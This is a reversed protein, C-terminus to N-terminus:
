RAAASETSPPRVTSTGCSGAPSNAGSTRVLLPSMVTRFPQAGAPRAGRPPRLVRRDAGGARRAGDGQVDRARRGRTASHGRPRCTRPLRLPSGRKHPSEPLRPESPGSPLPGDRRTTTAGCRTRLPRRPRPLGEADLARQSRVPLRRARPPGAPSGEGRRRPLADPALLPLPRIGDVGPRAARVRSRRLRLCAITLAPDPEIEYRM